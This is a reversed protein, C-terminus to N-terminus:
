KIIKREIGQAFIKQERNIFIQMLAYSSPASFLTIFISFFIPKFSVLAIGSHIALSLCIFFIGLSDIIVLAHQKNYLEKFRFLGFIGIACFILGSSLFIVFLIEKAAILINM